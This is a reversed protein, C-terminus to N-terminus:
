STVILSATHEDLLTRSYAAIEKYPIGYYRDLAKIQGDGWFQKDLATIIQYSAHSHPFCEDEKAEQAFKILCEADQYYILEVLKARYELDVQAMNPYMRMDMLHQGEHKLYSVLFADKHLIHKYRNYVCYLGHSTAWGGTSGWGFSAFHLWSLMLFHHMFNVIVTQEGYPLSVQFEEASNKQWIYPGRYPRTYGGLFNYGKDKFLLELKRETEDLDTTPTPICSNLRTHLLHEGQEASVRKTLVEIFYDYYASLVDQIWRDQTPIHLRANESYFRRTYRRELLRLEPLNPKHDHIYQLVETVDGQVCLSVIQSKTNPMM